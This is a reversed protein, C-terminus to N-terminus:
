CVKEGLVATLAKSRSKSKTYHKIHPLVGMKQACKITDLRRQVVVDLPPFKVQLKYGIVGPRMCNYSIGYNYHSIMMLPQHRGMVGQIRFLPSFCIQSQFVRGPLPTISM